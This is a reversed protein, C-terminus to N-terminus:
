GDEPPRRLHTRHPLARRDLSALVDVMSVPPVHEFM